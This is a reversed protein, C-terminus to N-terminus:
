ALIPSFLRTHNRFETPFPRIKTHPCHALLQTSPAPSLNYSVFCALSQALLHSHSSEETLDLFNASASVSSSVPMRLSRSPCTAQERWQQWQQLLPWLPLQAPTFLSSSLRWCCVTSASNLLVVRNSWIKQGPHEVACKKAPYSFYQVLDKETRHLNPSSQSLSGWIVMAVATVRPTIKRSIRLLLPLVVQQLGWPPLPSLFTAMLPCKKTICGKSSSLPCTLVRRCGWPIHSLETLQRPSRRLCFGGPRGAASCHQSSQVTVHLVSDRRMNRFTLM